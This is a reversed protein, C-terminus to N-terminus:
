RDKAVADFLGAIAIFVVMVMNTHMSLGQLGWWPLISLGLLGYSFTTLFRLFGSPRQSSWRDLFYAVTGAALSISGGLLLSRRGTLTPFLLAGAVLLAMLPGRVHLWKERM